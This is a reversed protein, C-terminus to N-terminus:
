FPSSWRYEANRSVTKTQNQDSKMQAGTNLLVRIMTINRGNNETHLFTALVTYKVDDLNIEGM